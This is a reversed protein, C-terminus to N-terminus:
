ERAKARLTSLIAKAKAQASAPAVEVRFRRGARRLIRGGAREGPRLETLAVLVGPGRLKLAPYCGSRPRIAVRWSGPVRLTLECSRFTWRRPKVTLTALLRNAKRLDAPTRATATLDFSRGGTSFVRHAFPLSDRPHFVNRRTLAVPLDLHDGTPPEALELLTVHVGGRSARLVLRAAYHGPPVEIWGSWDPLLRVAVGHAALRGNRPRLVQSPVVHLTALVANAKRLASALHPKRGLDAVVEVMDGALRADRRAFTDDGGFGELGGRLLNPPRLTLPASTPGFHLDPVWPGGNSIVLHV